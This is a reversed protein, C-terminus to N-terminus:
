QGESGYEEQLRTRQGEPPQEIEQVMQEEISPMQPQPAIPNGAADIGMEAQIEKQLEAEKKFIELLEEKFPMSAKPMLKTYTVKDIWGLQVMKDLTSIANADSFVSSAGIDSRITFEIDKILNSSFEIEGYSGDSKKYQMMRETTYYGKYFDVLVLGVDEIFQYYRRRIDETPLSSAKQLLMIASANNTNAEGTVAENAGILDKTKQMMMEVTNVVANTQNSPQIYSIPSHGIPMNASNTRIIEGVTNTIQKANIYRGDVLMKPFGTLQKSMLDMAMLGNIAKQNPILASIEDNGYISDMREEWNFIAFPYVSLKLKTPPKIMVSQTAKAFWIAGDERWFYTYVNIKRNEKNSFDAGAYRDQEPDDENLQRLEEKTAKNKTAEDIVSELEVRGSVVIYPQKQVDLENPNGFGVYMADLCQARIDGIFPSAESKSRVSRDWYFYAIGIGTVASRDVVRSCVSDMKAKEWTVSTLRNLLEGLGSIDENIAKEEAGGTGFPSFIMKVTQGKVSSTKINAAQKLINMVPRPLNKLQPQNAPIASWQEGAIFRDNTKWRETLGLDKKYQHSGEWRKHIMSATLKPKKPEEKEANGLVKFEEKKASM